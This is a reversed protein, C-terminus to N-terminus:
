RCRVATADRVRSSNAPVTVIFVTDESHLYREAISHARQKMDIPEGAMSAAFIGPLDVFELPALGVKHFEITLPDDTVGEIENMKECIAKLADDETYM